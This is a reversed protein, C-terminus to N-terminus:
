EARGAGNVYLANRAEVTRPHLLYGRRILYQLSQDLALRLAADLDRFMLRRVGEVGEFDRAPEAYDAVFLIKEATSMGARGTTHFRIADLVADATVHWERRALEAAVPAHLLVPAHREIPSVEIGFAEACRFLEDAPLDRACDHLLGALRAEDGPVGWREALRVCLATVREIHAYRQPRVRERVWAALREEAYM